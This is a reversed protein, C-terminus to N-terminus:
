PRAHPIGTGGSQPLHVPVMEIEVCGSQSEQISTSRYKSRACRDLAVPAAGVVQGRHAHFSGGLPVAALSRPRRVKPRRARQHPINRNCDHARSIRVASQLPDEEQPASLVSPVAPTRGQNEIQRSSKESSQTPTTSEYDSFNSKCRKGRKGRVRHRM